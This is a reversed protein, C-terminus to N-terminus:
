QAPDRHTIYAYTAKNELVSIPQGHHRIDSHCAHTKYLINIQTDRDIEQLKPKITQMKM